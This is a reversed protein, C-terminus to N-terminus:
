QIELNIIICSTLVSIYIDFWGCRKSRKHIHSTCLIIKNNDPRLLVKWVLFKESMGDRVDYLSLFLSRFPFKIAQIVFIKDFTNFGSFSTGKQPFYGPFGFKRVKPHPDCRGLSNEYGNLVVNAHCWLGFKPTEFVRRKCVNERLCLFKLLWM